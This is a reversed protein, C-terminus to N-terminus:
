QKQQQIHNIYKTIAFDNRQNNKKHKSRTM